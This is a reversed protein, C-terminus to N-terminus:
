SIARHVPVVSHRVAVSSGLGDNWQELPPWETWAGLESGRLKDSWLWEPHLPGCLPLM